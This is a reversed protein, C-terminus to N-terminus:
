VLGVLAIAAWGVFRTRHGQMLLTWAVSAGAALATTLFLAPLVDYRTSVGGGSLVSLTMFAVSAWLSLIGLYATSSTRDDTARRIGWVALGVMPASVAGAVAIGRARSDLPHVGGFTRRVVESGYGAAADVLSGSSGHTRPHSSWLLLAALQVILAAGA